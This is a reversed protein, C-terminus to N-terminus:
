LSLIRQLLDPSVGEQAVGYAARSNASRGIHVTLDRPGLLRFVTEDTTDDGAYFVRKAHLRKKLWRVAQGKNWRVDAFIELTKLGKQVILGLAQARHCIARLISDARRGDKPKVERYHVCLTWRKNEMWLGPLQALGPGIGQTLERLKRRRLSSLPYHWRFSRSQIEFGHVGGYILGKIGVRRRTEQLTRGSLIGVRGPFRRVLKELLRRAPPSLVVQRPHRAIPALTGDFDFLWLVEDPQKFLRRVEEWRALLPKV